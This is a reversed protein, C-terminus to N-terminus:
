SPMGCQVWAYFDMKETDTPQPAVHWPSGAPPMAHNAGCSTVAGDTWCPDGAIDAESQRAAVSAGFSTDFDYGIPRAVVVVTWRISPASRTPAASTRTPRTRWGVTRTAAFQTRAASHCNTCKPIITLESYKKPQTKTCDFTPVGTEGCAPVGAFSVVAVDGLLAGMVRTPKKLM